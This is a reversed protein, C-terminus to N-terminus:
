SSDAPRDQADGPSCQCSSLLVEKPQHRRYAMSRAAAAHFTGLAESADLSLEPIQNAGRRHLVFGVGRGTMAYESASGPAWLSDWPLAYWCVALDLKPLRKDLVMTWVVAEDVTGDQADIQRLLMQLGSRTRGMGEQVIGGATHVPDPLSRDTELAAAHKGLFM